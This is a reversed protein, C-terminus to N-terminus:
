HPLDAKEWWRRRLQYAVALAVLSLAAMIPVSVRYPLSCLLGHGWIFSMVLFVRCCVTGQPRLAVGLWAFPALMPVLWIGHPLPASYTVPRGNWTLPPLVAALLQFVAATLLTGGLALLMMPGLLAVEARFGTRRSCSTMPATLLMAALSFFPWSAWQYVLGAFWFDLMGERTGGDVYGGSVMMVPIGVWCCWCVLQARHFDHRRGPGATAPHPGPGPSRRDRAIAALGFLRDILRRRWVPGARCTRPLRSSSTRLWANPRFLDDAGLVLTGHLRRYLGPRALSRGLLWLLLVAAVLWPWATDFVADLEGSKSKYGLYRAPFWLYWIWIPIQFSWPIYLTALAFLAHVCLVSGAVMLPRMGGFDPHFAGLLAAMVVALGAAWSFQATLLKRRLGPQFFAPSAAMIEKHSTTVACTIQATMFLASFLAMAQSGSRFVSVVVVVLPVAVGLSMRTVLRGPRPVLLRRNLGMANM